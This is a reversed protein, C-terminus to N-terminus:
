GKLYNTLVHQTFCSDIPIFVMELELPNFLVTFCSSGKSGSTEFDLDSVNLFQNTYSTCRVVPSFTYRM